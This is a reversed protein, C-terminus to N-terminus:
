MLNVIYLGRQSREGNQKGLRAIKRAISRWFYFSNEGNEQM